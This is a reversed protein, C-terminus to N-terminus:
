IYQGSNVIINKHMVHLSRAYYRSHFFTKLNYILVIGFYDWQFLNVGTFDFYSNGIM